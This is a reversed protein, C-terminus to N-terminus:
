TWNTTMLSLIVFRTKIHHLIKKLQLMLSYNNILHLTLLEVSGSSVRTVEVFEHRPEVVRVCNCHPIVCNVDEHYCQYTSLPMPNMNSRTLGVGIQNGVVM